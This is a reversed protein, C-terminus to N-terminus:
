GRAGEAVHRDRGPGHHRFQQVRSPQPFGLDADRQWRWVTMTTIGLYRALAGNRAWRRGPTAAEPFHKSM